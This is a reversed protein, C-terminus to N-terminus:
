QQIGRSDDSLLLRNCKKSIELANEYDGLNQYATVALQLSKVTDKLLSMTDFIESSKFAYELAKHFNLCHNYYDSYARYLLAAHYTNNRSYQEIFSGGTQLSKLANTLNETSIEVDAIKSYTLIIRNIDNAEELIVLCNKLQQIALQPDTVATIESAITHEIIATQTKMNLVQLIAKAHNFCEIARKHDKIGQFAIGQAIATDAIKQMHNQLKYYHFAKELYYIADQADEFKLLTIGMNYCIKAALLNFEIFRNQIDYAKRYHYFAEKFVQQKFSCSGMLNYTWALLYSDHYNISEFHQALPRLIELAADYRQQQFHVEALHISLTYKQSASLDKHDILSHIVKEAENTQNTEILVEVLKCRSVLEMSQDEDQLLERIPIKFTFAIKNLLEPSATAKNQEIQSIWGITVGVSEALQAQSLNRETRLRRIRSGILEKNAIDSNM